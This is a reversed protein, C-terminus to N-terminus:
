VMWFHSSICIDQNDLILFFYWPDFIYMGMCAIFNFICHYVITCRVLFFSKLYFSPLSFPEFGQVFTMEVLVDESVRYYCFLCQNSFLIYQLYFVSLYLRFHQGTLCIEKAVIMDAGLMMLRNASYIVLCCRYFSCTALQFPSLFYRFEVLLDEVLAHGRYVAVAPSTISLNDSCDIISGFSLLERQVIHREWVNLIYCM